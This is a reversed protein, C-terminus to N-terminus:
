FNDIQIKKIRPNKQNYEIYVFVRYIGSETTLKGVKYHSRNSGSEGGHLPELNKPKVEQLWSQIKRIAERKTYLEQSDNICLEVRNDMFDIIRAIDSSQMAEFFKDEQANLCLSSFLTLLIFYVKMTNHNTIDKVELM